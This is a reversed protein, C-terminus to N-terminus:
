PGEPIVDAAVAEQESHGAPEYVFTFPALVHVPQSAPVNELSAATPAVLILQEPFHSSPVYEDVRPDTDKDSQM